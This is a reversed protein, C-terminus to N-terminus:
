SILIVCVDSLYGAAVAIIKFWPMTVATDIEASLLIKILEEQPMCIGDWRVYLDPYSVM